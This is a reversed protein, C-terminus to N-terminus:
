SFTSLQISKTQYSLNILLLLLLPSSSMLPCVFRDIFSFPSSSLIFVFLSLLSSSTPFHSLPAVLVLTHRSRRLNCLLLTLSFSRNKTLTPLTFMPVHKRDPSHPHPYRLPLSPSAPRHLHRHSNHKALQFVLLGHCLDAM